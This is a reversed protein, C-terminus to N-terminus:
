ARGPNGPGGLLTHGSPAPSKGAQSIDGKPAPDARSAVLPRYSPWALAEQTADTLVPRSCLEM